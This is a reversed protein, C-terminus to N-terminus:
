TTRPSLRTIFGAFMAATKKRVLEADDYQDLENLKVLARRAVTRGPDPWSAATPLSSDGRRCRCSGNRCWWQGPCRASAETTRIPDICTTPVRRGLRDFEIGARIVNGNALERNMALPLHEAELVQIQRWRCGMRPRRWRLRVIAEGGGAHGPLRAVAAWLFRHTWGCRRDRVLGVVPAPHSRTPDADADGHQQPKIGTGIANAVFAEIGAAAWANRRVLDRSKARLQEQTYAGGRGPNAM